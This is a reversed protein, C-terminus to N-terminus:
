RSRRLAAMIWGIGGVVLIVVGLCFIGALLFAIWASLFTVGGHQFDGTGCLALLSALMLTLGLLSVRWWRYPTPAQKDGQPPEYPNPEM